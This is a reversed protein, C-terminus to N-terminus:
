RQGRFKLEFQDVNSKSLRVMHLTGICCMYAPSAVPSEFIPMQQTAASAREVRKSPQAEEDVWKLHSFGDTEGKFM